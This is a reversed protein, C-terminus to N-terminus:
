KRRKLERERVQNKEREENKKVAFMLESIQQVRTGRLSSRLNKANLLAPCDFIVKPSIFIRQAFSLSLSRVRKLQNVGKLFDYKMKPKIYLLVQICYILLLETLIYKLTYEFYKM